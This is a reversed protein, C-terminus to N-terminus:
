TNLRKCMLTASAPCLSSFQRSARIAEPVQARDQETYGLTAFFGEATETLLYLAEIGRAAALTELAGVVTHALGRGRAAPATAVSRLLATNGCPELGGVVEVTDGPGDMRFLSLDLQELDDTPLGSAGLLKVIAPLQERKPARM